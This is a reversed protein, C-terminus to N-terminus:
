KLASSIFKIEDDTFQCLQYITDVSDIGNVTRPVPLSQLRNVKLEGEIGGGMYFRRLAWYGVTTLYILLSEFNCKGTILNGPAPILYGRRDLAFFAGKSMIAPFIIKQKNFDDLFSISPNNDLELWHHQGPYEAGPKPKGSSTYRCQGRKKLKDEFQKLHRYIAPYETPIVKHSGFYALIAYLGAWEYGNRKIDRGRLIPRILKDTREREADDACDDLIQQRRDKDIIFAENCGTKIGYNIQIDWDKLPTGYKEIKAKISREIPLLIAWNEDLKYTCDTEGSKIVNAVDGLTVEKGQANKGLTIAHTPMTYKSKRLMLIDTDVTASDFVGSGLDILLLPQTNKVFYNRLTKGYGSRMWKNSTIYTLIGNAKLADLFREFFLTYLDGRREYTKFGLKSYFDRKDPPMNELHVYPPNGIVMDFKEVGFMYESDFFEAPHSNKFPDFSRLQQSHKDDILSGQSTLNYYERKCNEKGEPTRARFFKDRFKMLREQLGPDSFLGTRQDLKVLSNACVFKFDLNPLPDIDGEDDVMVALWARLRSIEVAMPEIDVGYINNQLIQLKTRYPDFRVDLREYVRSLLQMMGMPFAGSGCAPDLIRLDDLAAIIRGAADKTRNEGWLDRKSNGTAEWEHDPLDLLKDIGANYSEDDIRQYLYQRLSERCMYSVIERPTYFAGKAKRAREGTDETQEALLSEFVRGLMEPDIAVLQYDPSSEDTTFNYQNLHDYLRDFYDDPFQITEGYWDNDHIDFLGGNLYPTTNDSGTRANVPTNLTHFFLQKLKSQYYSTSDGIDNSNGPFYGQSENIVGKKRLFWIFLLRGLLRSAFMKADNASKGQEILCKSLEAFLDAIGRYFRLNVSKLSLADWLCKHMEQKTPLNLAGAIEDFIECQTNTLHGNLEIIRLNGDRSVVVSLTKADRSLFFDIGIRYNDNRTLESDEWNRTLMVGASVHAKTASESLWYFKFECNADDYLDLAVREDEYIPHLTFWNQKKQNNFINAPLINDEILIDSEPMDAGPKLINVVDKAVQVAALLESIHRKRANDFKAGSCGLARIHANVKAYKDSNMM